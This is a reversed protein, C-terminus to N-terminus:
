TFAPSRTPCPVISARMAGSLPPSGTSTRESPLVAPQPSGPTRGATSLYSAAPTGSRTRRCAPNVACAIRALTSRIGARRVGNGLQQRVLERGTPLPGKDACTLWSDPKPIETKEPQCTHSTPGPPEHQRARIASLPAKHVAPSSLDSSCIPM